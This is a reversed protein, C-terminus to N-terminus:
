GRRAQVCSLRTQGVMLVHDLDYAPGETRVSYGANAASGQLLSAIPQRVLPSAFAPLGPEESAPAVAVVARHGDTWVTLAQGSSSLCSFRTSDANGVTAAGPTQSFASTTCSIAALLAIQATLRM